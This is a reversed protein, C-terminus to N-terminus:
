SRGAWQTWMDQYAAELQATFRVPDTLASSQMRSRLEHRWFAMRAPDEALAVAKAVYEDPTSAILERAGVCELLTVGVRSAHRDGALTVVPVGMWLSECTTTTGHYPFADLAIDIGSYSNLHDRLKPIVGSFAIRSLDLGLRRMREKAADQVAADRLAITKMSLRANPLADLIRAWLKLVEDGVKAFNNYAAFTVYKRGVCPPEAVPPAEPSPAYSLFVEPLRYLREVYHSDALPSPDALADTLRWDMADLGTTNPYGLWTVQIPAVRRGLVPLRNKATHGALDVVIDLEDALMKSEVEDDSLWAIDRWLDSSRRLRQTVDDVHGHNYYCVIEFKDRNHAALVHEIFFSVVHFRFDPSVYGIRLRRRPVAARARFDEPTRRPPYQRGFARHEDLLTLADVGDMYNLTLLVNSVGQAYEPKLAVARRTVEVSEALRGQQQLANGLNMLAAADDPLLELAKLSAAESEVARGKFFCFAGLALWTGSLKPNLELSRRLATEAQEDWGLNMKAIGLNMYAEPSEPDTAVAQELAGAAAEIRGTLHLLDAYNIWASTFASRLDLTRRYEAESEDFQGLAKLVNAMAFHIDPDEPALALAEHLHLEADGSAGSEHLSIALQVLAQAHEPGLRVAERHSALADDRRGLARQATGLNIWAETSQPALRIAESLLAVAMEEQRRRIYVAALNIMAEINGSNRELAREHLKAAGDLEGQSQLLTGLGVLAPVFDPSARLSAEYAGTAGGPDGLAALATGLNAWAASHQPQRATAERYAAVAGQRDGLAERTLGLENWWDAESDAGSVAQEFARVADPLRNVARLVEARSYHYAPNNGDAQIAMDYRRLASDLAGDTADILGLLYNADGHRPALALVEEYAKRAGAKDGASQASFGAQVIEALNVSDVPARSHKRKFWEFM